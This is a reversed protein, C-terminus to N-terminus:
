IHGGTRSRKLTKPELLPVEQMLDVIPELVMPYKVEAMEILPGIPILKLTDIQIRAELVNGWVPTFSPDDAPPLNNWSLVACVKPLNRGWVM